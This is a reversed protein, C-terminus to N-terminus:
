FFFEFRREENIFATPSPQPLCNIKLIRQFLGTEGPKKKKAGRGGGYSYLANYHAAASFWGSLPRPPSIFYSKCTSLKKHFNM